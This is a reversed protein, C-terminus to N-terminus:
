KGGLNRQNIGRQMLENGLLRRHDSNGFDIADAGGGLSNRVNSLAEAFGPDSARLANDAKSNATFAENVTDILKKRRSPDLGDMFRKIVDEQESIMEANNRVRDPSACKEGRAIEEAADMLHDTLEKHLDDIMGRQDGYYKRIADNVIPLELSALADSFIAAAAFADTKSNIEPRGSQKRFEDSRKCFTGNSNAMPVCVAGSPDDAGVPNNGVYTYRNTNLALEVPDHILFRGSNPDYYRARYYYLISLKGYNVDRKSRLSQSRASSKM